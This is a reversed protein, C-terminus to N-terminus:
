AAAANGGGRRIIPLSFVNPTDEDSFEGEGSENDGHASAGDAPGGDFPPGFPPGSPAGGLDPGSQPDDPPPNSDPDGRGAAPPDSNRGYRALIAAEVESRSPAGM